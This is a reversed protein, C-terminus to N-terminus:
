FRSALRAGQRIYNLGEIFHRSGPVFRFGRERYPVPKKKKRGKRVLVKDGFTHYYTWRPPPDSVIDHLRDQSRKGIRRSNFHSIAQIPLSPSGIEERYRRALMRARQQVEESPHHSKVSRLYAYSASALRRSEDALSAHYKDACKKFTQYANLEGEMFQLVPPGNLDRLREYAYDHYTRMENREFNKIKFADDKWAHGDECKYTDYIRDEELMRGYLETGPCPTLPIVQYFLPKLAVFRDIDEKLNDPTHFDFGLVLSGVIHIGQRGLNEFMEEVDKIESISRSDIGYLIGPRLPRGSKDLPLV